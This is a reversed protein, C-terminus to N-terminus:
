LELRDPAEAAAVADMFKLQRAGIADLEIRQDWLRKLVEHERCAAADLKRHYNSDLFFQGVKSLSEYMPSNVFSMFRAHEQDLFRREAGSMMKMQTM